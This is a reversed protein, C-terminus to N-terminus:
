LKIIYGDELIGVTDSSNLTMCYLIDDEIGHDKLRQFHTAKRISEYLQQENAHFLQLSMIAADGYIQHDSLLRNCLGGAFLTDEMNVRNKWGACLILIDQQSHKLQNAVADLNSLSGILTKAAEKSAEIAKTGNTTTMVLINDQFDSQKNALELPSNGLDFGEVKKGDREGAVLYGPKNIYSTAESRSAVPLIQGIGLDLAKIMTSTARLVDTVVVVHNELSYYPLLAPSLCVQVKAM